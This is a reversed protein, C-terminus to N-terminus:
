ASYIGPTTKNKNKKPSRFVVAESWAKPFRVRQRESTWRGLPRDSRCLQAPGAPCRRRRARGSRPSTWRAQAWVPWVPAQVSPSAQWSWPVGATLVAKITSDTGSWSWYFNFYHRESYKRWNRCPDSRLRRPRSGPHYSTLRRSVFPPHVHLHCCHEQAQAQCSALKLPIYSLTVPVLVRLAVALTVSSPRSAM